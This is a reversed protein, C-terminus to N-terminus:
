GMQDEKEISPPFPPSTWMPSVLSSEIGGVLTTPAVVVGVVPAVGVILAKEVVRRKAQTM